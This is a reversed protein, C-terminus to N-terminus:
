ELSGHCPHNWTQKCGPSLNTYDSGLILGTQPVNNGCGSGSRDANQTTKYPEYGIPEAYRVLNSQRLQTITAPNRIIVDFVPLVGNEPFAFLKSETLGPDVARESALILDIVSQRATRWAPSQINLLHLRDEVNKEGAVQYGVSLVFDANSLATWIQEESAWAWLFQGETELKERMFQDLATPDPKGSIEQSTSSEQKRCSHLGLLLFTLLFLFSKKM